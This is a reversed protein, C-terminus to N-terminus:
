DLKGGKRASYISIPFTQFDCGTHTDVQKQGNTVGARQIRAAPDSVAHGHSSELYMLRVCNELQAQLGRTISLRDGFASISSRFM